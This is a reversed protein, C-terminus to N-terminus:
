GEVEGRLGGEVVVEFSRVVARGVVGSLVVGMTGNGRASRSLGVLEIWGGPSHARTRRGRALEGEGSHYWIGTKM